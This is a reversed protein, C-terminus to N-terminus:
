DTILHKTEDLFNVYKRVVDIEEKLPRVKMVLPSNKRYILDVPADKNLADDIFIKKRGKLSLM